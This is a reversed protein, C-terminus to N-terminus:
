LNKINKLRNNYQKLAEKLLISIMGEKTSSLRDEEFYTEDAKEKDLCNDCSYYSYLYRCRADKYQKDKRDLVYTIKSEGNIDIDIHIIKAQNVQGLTYFWVKDGTKFKTQIDM